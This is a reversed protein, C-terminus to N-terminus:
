DGGNIVPMGDVIKITRVQKMQNPEQKLYAILTSVEITDKPPEYESDFWKEVLGKCTSHYAFICDECHISDCSVPKGTYNTVGIDDAIISIIENKYKEYNTM